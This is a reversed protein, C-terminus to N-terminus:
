PNLHAAATGTKWDSKQLVAAFRLMASAPGAGGGCSLPPRLGTRLRAFQIPDQICEPSKWEGETEFRKRSCNFDTNM